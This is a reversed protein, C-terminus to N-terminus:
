RMGAITGDAADMIMRSLLYLRPEISSINVYEADNSHSGYGKLGLGEIVPASTRLAAYSADTGGGISVTGIKLTGGAEAYVRQAHQAAKLSQERFPLPPYLREFRVDVSTDPILHTRIRERIRAEVADFNREDDARMDGLAQAEAPIANPVSGGSVVTWNMKVSKAPDSLDRMQLLQHALEYVANRGQEPASGAHSARGKVTLVALQVGSTALRVSEDQPSGECSLVLDHETALSTILDREAVSGIEEDPSILVTILGYRDFSLAKLAALTHLILAVGHKDDAIGLGYARDGDVRFPQQALMGRQYVTDMHALLLIRKTGRGRFRAVVTEGVTPPTTQFRPMNAAPPVLEVEGGLARLRGAILAGIRALGEVDGSGSEIAVLDRLTELLPQKERQAQTRVAAADQAGAVAPALVLVLLAFRIRMDPHRITEFYLTTRGNM